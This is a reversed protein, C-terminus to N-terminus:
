QKAEWDKYLINLAEIMKPVDTMHVCNSTERSFDQFILIDDDCTTDIIVFEALTTMSCDAFRIGNVTSTEDSTIDRIM